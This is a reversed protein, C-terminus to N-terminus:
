ITRKKVGKGLIFFFIQIERNVPINSCKGRCRKTDLLIKEYAVYGAWSQLHGGPWYEHPHIPNKMAVNNLHRKCHTELVSIFGMIWFLDLLITKINNSFTEEAEQDLYKRGRHVM